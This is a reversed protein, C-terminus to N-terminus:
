IISDSKVSIKLINTDPQDLGIDYFLNFLPLIRLNAYNKHLIKLIMGEKNIKSYPYITCLNFLIM